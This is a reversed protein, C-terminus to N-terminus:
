SRGPDHTYLVMRFKGIQVEDRPKLVRSGDVLDRNVYTGNLSGLDDVTVVGAALSFRAHHRSVTIDDLFIECDTARGATTTAANLLYREGPLAGRTVVLLAAGAPLAAVAMTLEDGPDAGHPDDEVVQIVRTTDGTPAGSLRDGCRACFNAGVPNTYGCANCTAM